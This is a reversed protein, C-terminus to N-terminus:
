EGIVFTMETESSFEDIYRYGLANFRKLQGVETVNNEAMFRVMEGRAMKALTGKQKIKGHSLEGFTCTVFTDSSSLYPKVVQSYERSALNIVTHDERTLEKYIRNDWFGYLDRNSLVAMRAQMELRYPVVGDFPSLIGYFGSLIRLHAGIYDLAQGTLILPALHQYQLGEYALVAPTLNKELDMDAFRKYNLGALQDNCSWLKKLEDYSFKRIEEWLIRTQGLLVPLGGAPLSDTDVNMKKAPSIIIKM